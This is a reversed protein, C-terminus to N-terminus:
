LSLAFCTGLDSLAPIGIDPHVRTFRSVMQLDFHADLLFEFTRMSDKWFRNRANKLIIEFQFSRPSASPSCSLSWGPELRGLHAIRARIHMNEHPRLRELFVGFVYLFRAKEFSEQLYNHSFHSNRLQAHFRPHRSARGSGLLGRNCKHPLGGVRLGGGLLRTYIPIYIKNCTLRICLCLYTIYMDM